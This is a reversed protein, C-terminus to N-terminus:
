DRDRRALEFLTIFWEAFGLGLPTRADLSKRLVAIHLQQGPPDVWSLFTHIDAKDCHADTHSAGHGKAEARAKQAFTWLPDDGSPVMESLFTELMGPSQNDPMIWVGIRLGSPAEYILGGVPLDEPFDPIVEGCLRSVTAWCKDRQDDADIVIGLVELDAINLEAEIAGAKLLPEIGDFAKILVVAETKKEGWVVFKDMLEAIVRKDEDGEVLLRKPHFKAM